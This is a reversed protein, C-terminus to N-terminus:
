KALAAGRCALHWGILRLGAEFGCRYAQDMLQAGMMLNDYFFSAPHERNAGIGGVRAALHLVIDPRPDAYLRRVASPQALDYECSRPVFVEGCGRDRLKGVVHRGLFGAGGTVAVRRTQWYDM